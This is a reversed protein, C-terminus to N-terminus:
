GGWYLWLFTVSAEAPFDWGRRGGESSGRKLLLFLIFLFPSQSPPERGPHDRFLEKDPFHQLMAIAM